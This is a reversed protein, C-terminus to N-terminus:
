PRVPAPDVADVWVGVTALLRRLPAADAASLPVMVSHGSPDTVTLYAQDPRDGIIRWEFIAGGAQFLQSM